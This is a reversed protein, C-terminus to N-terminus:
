SRLCCCSRHSLADRYHPRGLLGLPCKTPPVQNFLSITRPRRPCRNQPSSPNRPPHIEPLIAVREQLHQQSRAILFPRRVTLPQPCLGKRVALCPLLSPPMPSSARQRRGRMRQRAAWRYAARRACPELRVGCVSSLRACPTSHRTSDVTDHPASISQSTLSDLSSLCASVSLKTLPLPSKTSLCVCRAALRKLAESLPGSFFHVRSGLLPAPPATSPLAGRSHLRRM